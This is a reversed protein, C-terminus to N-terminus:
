LQKTWDVVDWGDLFKEMEKKLVRPPLARKQANPPLHLLGCLVDRGFDNRWARTDDIVHAFGGKMGFECHFYPFNTPITQRLGKPPATCLCRKGAHTAWESESEDIAKKFYAPAAKAYPSLTLRTEAFPRHRSKPFACRRVQSRSTERFRFASWSRTRCSQTERSPPGAPDPSGPAWGAGM